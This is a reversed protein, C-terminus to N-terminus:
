LFSLSTMSVESGVTRAAQWSISYKWVDNDAKVPAKTYRMKPIRIAICQGNIFGNRGMIIKAVATSGAEFATQFAANEYLVDFSGEIKRKTQIRKSIGASTIAKKDYLTNTIRFMFKEMEVSAGGISAVCSVGVLPDLANPSTAGLAYAEAERYTYNGKSTFKPIIIGGTTIDFEMSDVSNGGYDERTIDGRWLSLWFIQLDAARLKYHTGARIRTFQDPAATVAPTVLLTNIGANISNIWTVDITALKITMAANPPATLAPSVTITKGSYNIDTIVTPEILALGDTNPVQIVNGISFNNPAATTIISTVTSGADTTYTTATPCVVAIADGVSFNVTEGAKVVINTTDSAAGATSATNTNKIGIACEYLPSGEPATGPTVCGRINLKITVTGTKGGTLMPTMEDKTNAIENATVEDHSPEADISEVQIIDASTLVPDVGYGGSQLKIGVTTSLVLAEAM